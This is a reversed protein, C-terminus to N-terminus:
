SSAIFEFCSLLCIAAACRARIEVLFEDRRRHPIGRIGKRCTGRPRCYSLIKSRRLAVRRQRM